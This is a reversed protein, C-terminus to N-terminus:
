SGHYAVDEELRAMPCIRVFAFGGEYADEQCWGEDNIPVAVLADVEVVLDKNRICDILADFMEQDRVANCIYATGDPALREKICSSLSNVMPWEYLVDTGIITQFKEGVEVSPAVTRSSDGDLAAPPPGAGRGCSGRHSGVGVGGVGGVGRDVSDEWDIFRVAANGRTWGDGDGDEDPMNLALAERLNLLLKDVYDSIVVSKAGLKSALFGCAGVGAGVELVSKGRIMQERDRVMRECMIRAVRWLKAGVGDALAGEKIFVERHCANEIGGFVLRTVKDGQASPGSCAVIIASLDDMMELHEQCRKMTALAQEAMGCAVAESVYAEGGEALSRAIDKVLVALKTRGCDGDREYTDWKEQWRLVTENAVIIALFDEEDADPGIRQKTSM